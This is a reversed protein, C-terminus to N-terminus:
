DDMGRFVYHQKIMELMGIVSVLLTTDPLEDDIKQIIETTLRVFRPDGMNLTEVNDEEM